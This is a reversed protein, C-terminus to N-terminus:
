GFRHVQASKNPPNTATAGPFAESDLGYSASLRTTPAAARPDNCAKEGWMVVNWALWRVLPIRTMVTDLARLPMWWSLRDPTERLIRKWYRDQNPHIRDVLYYKAFLLLSSIWFERHDVRSFYKRALEVDAITLPSEDPTRVATAMRRYVNILPNYAIPDYSFFMGGPKLARSMQKFLAARDQVHHITNAVYVIDYTNTPVNLNEASSVIGELPVGYRRGLRLATEVMRPSIDVTTVRAGQLAFYVSSEGLGAGIDLLRKGALSGMRGLIFRNELATPAEFSECILVDELLTRSAWADHFAAERRQTITDSLM